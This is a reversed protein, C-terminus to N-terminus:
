SLPDCIERNLQADRKRSYRYVFFTGFTMLTLPPALLVMVGRNIAQRGEKTTASASAYCMACGQALAPGAWLVVLIALTALRVKM